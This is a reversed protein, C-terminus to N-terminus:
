KLINPCQWYDGNNRLKFINFNVATTQLTKVLKTVCFEAITAKCKVSLGVLIADPTAFGRAKETPKDISGVKDGVTIFSIYAKNVICPKKM